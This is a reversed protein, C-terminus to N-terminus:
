VPRFRPIATGEGTDDFVVEVPMGITVTEPDCGVVNTMLRPGEELEVYALVYPAVDKWPGMGRRAITFSYVTGRGTADFWETDTSHCDPCVFRPYWIVVGCARCRRLLLVGRGTADWFEKTDLDVYPAKAPLTREGKASSM